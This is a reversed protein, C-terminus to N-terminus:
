RLSGGAATKEATAVVGTGSASRRRVGQRELDALQREHRRGDYTLWGLLAAIVVAVIGYSLWIYAAHPGLDM